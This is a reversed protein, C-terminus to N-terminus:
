WGDISVDEALSMIRKENQHSYVVFFLPKKIINFDEHETIMQGKRM